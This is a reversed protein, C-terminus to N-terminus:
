AIKNELNGDGAAENKREIRHTNLWFVPRFNQQGGMDLEFL